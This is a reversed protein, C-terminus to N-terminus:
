KLVIDNIAKRTEPFSLEIKTLAILLCTIVLLFLNLLAIIIISFVHSLPVSILYIYLLMNLCLWITMILVFLFFFMFALTIIRKQALRVEARMMSFVHGVLSFVVPLVMLYKLIKGATGRRKKKHETQKDTM